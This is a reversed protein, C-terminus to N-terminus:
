IKKDYKVIEIVRDPYDSIMGDVGLSLVKAIDDNSNVTWPIVKIKKNQLYKIDDHKLFKYNPSFSYPYFGLNKLNLKPNYNESVLLSLKVNPHNKNIYRLVRFDFSQITFREESIFQSIVSLVLNSFEKYNPHFVGENETSSKIEINYNVEEYDKVKIYTEIENLCHNLLPKNSSIKEQKPFKSNFLSGCDYKIIQNYDMEYINFSSKDEIIKKNNVDLCIYKSIWPEHSIIVKKDKSIVVDMELTNVGIDLSEKFGLISNEPYMGRFGRHGQVDFNKFEDCSFLFLLISFFNIKTKM